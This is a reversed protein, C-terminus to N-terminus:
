TLHVYGVGEWGMEKVDTKINDERGCRGLPIKWELNEVSVYSM